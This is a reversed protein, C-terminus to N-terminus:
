HRSEWNLPLYEWLLATDSCNCGIYTWSTSLYLSHILRTFTQRNKGKAMDQKVKGRFDLSGCEGCVNSSEVASFKKRRTEKMQFTM